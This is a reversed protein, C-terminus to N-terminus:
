SVLRSTTSEGFNGLAASSLTSPIMYKSELTGFDLLFSTVEECREEKSPSTSYHHALSRALQPTTDCQTRSEVPIFVSDAYIDICVCYATADTASVSPAVPADLSVSNYQNVGLSGIYSSLDDNPEPDSQSINETICAVPFRLRRQCPIRQKYHVCVHLQQSIQRHRITRHMIPLQV